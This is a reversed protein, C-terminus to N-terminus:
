SCCRYVGRLSPTGLPSALAMSSYRRTRVASASSIAVLTGHSIFNTPLELAGRACGRESRAGRRATHAGPTYPM